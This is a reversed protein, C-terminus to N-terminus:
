VALLILYFRLMIDRVSTAGVATVYPSTAPFIPTYGCTLSNAGSDGSSSVITIGIASAKIAANNFALLVSNSVLKELTGYSISWVLPPNVQNAVALLWDAFFLTTDYYTTPSGRSVSMIYQLDANGEVCNEKNNICYSSSNTHGGIVYDVAHHPVGFENQFKLQDLPNFTEYPTQFVGQTSSVSGVVSSSMNYYSALLSPTVYGRYGYNYFSTTSDGYDDNASMLCTPTSKVTSKPTSKVLSKVAMEVTNFVSEVHLDLSVPISYEETRVMHTVSDDDHTQYFSFFQTNLM